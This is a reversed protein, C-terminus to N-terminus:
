NVMKNIATQMDPVFFVLNGRNSEIIFARLSKSKYRDFEGIIALKMRYTSFKQLIEGAIGSQLDFFEKILNKEHLIIGRARLDYANAMLDLTNQVNEIVVESSNIVAIKKDKIDLLQIDMFEEEKSHLRDYKLFQTAASLIEL